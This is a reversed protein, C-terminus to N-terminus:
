IVIEEEDEGPREPRRAAALSRELDGAMLDFEPREFIQRVGWDVGFEARIRAALRAAALSHGGLDFFDQDGAALPAGLVATWLAALRREADSRPAWAAPRAQAESVAALVMERARPFDIKGGATRPLAAAQVLLAPAAAAPLRRRLARRLIQPDPGGCYLALIRPGDPGEVSSVAAAGVGPEAALAQQVEDLEIRQGSIKVQRDARGLLVFAGDPRMRARDGTLFWRRGRWITFRAETLEPRGRYSRALCLGGVLLLGAQGPACPTMAEDVVALAVGPLPGGVDVEPADPRIEAMAADAGTESSGYFNLLRLNPRLTLLRAALASSLAEGSSLITELSDMKLIPAADGGELLAALLSPVVLLRRAGLARHALALRAPDRATEPDILALPRGGLLPGFIEALYDGFDIATRAACREEAAFPLHTWQWFLRNMLASRTFEVGNPRGTSGSAFILCALDDPPAVASDPPADAWDAPRLLPLGEEAPGGVIAAAGSDEIMMRRRAQPQEPSIAIFHAGCRWVALMAAVLEPGRPLVIAAADGPKLGLRRLAGAAKRSELSLAARSALLRGEGDLLAPAEPAEAALLDFLAVPDAETPWAGPAAERASPGFPPAERVSSAASSGSGDSSPPALTLATWPDRAAQAFAAAMTELFAETEVAGLLDLRHLAQLSLSGDEHDATSLELDLPGRAAESPRAQVSVAGADFRRSALSEQTFAIRYVPHRTPDRRADLLRALRDFDALGRRWAAGFVEAVQAALADFSFLGASRLGLPLNGVLMGPMAELGPLDRQAVHTGILLDPEGTWQRLAWVFSSLRFVFDTVNLRRAAAEALRVTEPAIRRRRLASAAEALPLRSAGKSPAEAAPPLGAAQDRWWDLHRGAVARTAPAREWEAHDAPHIERAALPRGALAASFDELFLNFSWGDLFAHHTTLILRARDAGLRALVAVLNRGEDLPFPTLSRARKLASLAAEPDAEATLDLVPLDPTWAPGPHQWLDGEADEILATRLTEWVAIVTALAKRVAEAECPGDLALDFTMAYLGAGGTLAEELRLRSQASSARTPARRDGPRRRVPPVAAEGSGVRGVTLLAALDAFVPTQFVTLASAGEVRGALLRGYLRIGSASSARTGAASARSSRSARGLRRTIM